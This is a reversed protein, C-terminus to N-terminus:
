IYITVLECPSFDDLRRFMSVICTKLIGIAGHDHHYFVLLQFHQTLFSFFDFTEVLRVHEPFLVNETLTRRSQSQRYSWLTRISRCLEYISDTPNSFSTAVSEITLSVIAVSPRSRGDFDLSIAHPGYLIFARSYRYSHVAVYRGSPAFWVPSFYRSFYVRVTRKLRPSSDDPRKPYCRLLRFRFRRFTITVFDDSYVRINIERVRDIRSPVAHFAGDRHCRSV